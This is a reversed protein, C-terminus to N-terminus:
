LKPPELDELRVGKLRAQLHRPVQGECGPKVTLTSVQVNYLKAYITGIISRWERVQDNDLKHDPTTLVYEDFGGAKDICRLAHMTINMRIHRDLGFSFIRKTQVNPKWTRRTKNGGDESVQNGFQIHRGAYLGRKARGMVVRAASSM